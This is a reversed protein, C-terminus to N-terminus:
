PLIHYRHTHSTSGEQAMLEDTVDSLHRIIKYPDIRLPKLKTSLKVPEFNTDIVFTNLTFQKLHITESTSYQSIFLNPTQRHVNSYIELM